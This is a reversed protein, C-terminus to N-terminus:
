KGAAAAMGLVRARHRFFLPGTLCKTMIDGCNFATGVKATRAIRCFDVWRLLAYRTALWRSSKTMREAGTGNIVAEADTYIVTPKSPGIGLDLDRQLTRAAIAYKVARVIMKLEAGASSDDTDAPAECKWALAGRGQQAGEVDPDECRLIYGGYSRGRPGNGHSSDSYISFLNLSGEPSVPAAVTLCLGKTSVLYRGVRLLLRFVLSTLGGENLHRSLVCYAFHADCRVMNTIFGITGGIRQAEPLMHPMLPNKASPPERLRSLADAPLPVDHPMNPDPAHPQLLEELARIVGLCSIEVSRGGIPHHRLGTFNESLGAPEPPSNFEAAWARYFHSRAEPTTSTLRSDDVHDHIM